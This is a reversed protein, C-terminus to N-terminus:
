VNWGALRRALMVSDLEDIDGNGDVDAASQDIAVNWSALYRALAVSDLEDVEGSGNVDGYLKKSTYNDKYNYPCRTCQHLTYGDSYATPAVVTVKYNHGLAPISTIDKKAGCVTCHHSKRGDATCTAQVDVTWGSSYSHGKAAITQTQTDGCKTCSRTQIGSDTCTPAKTTTWSGYSHGTASITQTETKGCSCSRTQVGIETCTAPKTIKWAGYSHSGTTTFSGEPSWYEKGNVVAYFKYFYKTSHTLTLNLEKNMDYCPCMYTSGVYTRSTNDYKSWGNEYTGGDIRVRVGIKTVPYSTPKDVEGYIIANTNTINNKYRSTSTKVTVSSDSASGALTKFSYVPSTYTVTSGNIDYKGILRYYYTTNPSLYHNYEKVFDFTIDRSTSGVNTSSPKCSHTVANQMNSSTSVSIDYALAKAESPKHFKAAVLANTSTINKVSINDFLCFIRFKQAAINPSYTYLNVNNRAAGADVVLVSSHKVRMVYSNQSGYIGYRQSSTDNDEWVQINTYDSNGGNAADLCKGTAPNKIEYYNGDTRTFMWTQNPTGVYKQISVNNNSDVTLAKTGDSSQIAALFQDGLNLPTTTLDLKDFESTTSYLITLFENYHTAFDNCKMKRLHIKCNTYNSKEKSGDPNWCGFNADILYIYGDANALYCMSHGSVMFVAGARIKKLAEKLEAESYKKLRITNSTQKGYFRYYCYAAYGACGRGKTINADSDTAKVTNYKVTETEDDYFNTRCTSDSAMNNGVHWPCPSGIGKGPGSLNNFYGALPFESLIKEFREMESFSCTKQMVAKVENLATDNDASCAWGGGSWGHHGSAASVKMGEGLIPLYDSLPSIFLALAVIASILKKAIEKLKM